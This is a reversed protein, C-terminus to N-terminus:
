PRCTMTTDTDYTPDANQKLFNSKILALSRKSRLRVFCPKSAELTFARAWTVDVWDSALPSSSSLQDTFIAWRFLQGMSFYSLRPASDGLLFPIM